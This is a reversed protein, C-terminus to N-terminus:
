IKQRKFLAYKIILFFDLMGRGSVTALFATAGLKGGSGDFLSAVAIFLIATLITLFFMESYNQAREKSVMGTFTACFAAVVIIHGPDPSVVAILLGVLASATVADLSFIDQLFYTALGAAIIILFLPLYLEASLPELTRLPTRFIFSALVTGCFATFGLKGGFGKFLDLSLVFLTATIISALLFSLPNSFIISCAMGVFPVATHDRSCVKQFLYAGSLGVASSALVGGLGLQHNLFFTLYAGIVLASFTYVTTSQKLDLSRKLQSKIKDWEVKLQKAFFLGAIGLLALTVTNLVTINGSILTYFLYYAFFTFLLFSSTLIM